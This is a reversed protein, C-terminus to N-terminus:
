ARGLEFMYGNENRSRVKIAEIIMRRNPNIRTPTTEVSVSYDTETMWRLYAINREIDHVDLYDASGVKPIPALVDFIHRFAELQTAFTTWEGAPGVYAGARSDFIKLNSM